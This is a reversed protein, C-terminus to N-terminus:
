NAPRRIGSQEASEAYQQLVGDPLSEEFESFDRFFLQASEWRGSKGDTPVFPTLKTGPVIFVRPKEQLVWLHFDYSRSNLATDWENRTLYFTAERLRMTTGKVEIKLREPAAAGIISLVDYGSVNSEVAQWIPPAGTRMEEYHLSLREAVRGIRLMASSRKSRVRQAVNDWWDITERDIGEFLLGDRFCQEASVPMAKQAEFRGLSIRRAWPPSDVSVVDALQERLCIVHQGSQLITEGRETVALEGRDTVRIWNCRQALVLVLQSDAVEIRRFSAEFQDSKIAREKVLHLLTQCSYLIGVSFSM